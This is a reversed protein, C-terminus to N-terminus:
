IRFTHKDLKGFFDLNILSDINRESPHQQRTDQNSIREEATKQAHTVVNAVKRERTDDPEKERRGVNSEKWICDDFGVINGLIVGAVPSLLVLPVVNDKFFPADIHAHVTPLACETGDSMVCTATEGTFVEPKIFSTKM